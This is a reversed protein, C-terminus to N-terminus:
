VVFAKWNGHFKSKKGRRRAFKGPLLWVITMTGDKKTSLVEGTEWRGRDNFLFNEKTYKKTINVNTHDIPLRRKIIYM